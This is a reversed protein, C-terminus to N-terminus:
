GLRPQFPGPVRAAHHCYGLSKWLGRRPALSAGPSPTQIHASIKRSGERRELWVGNDRVDVPTPLTTAWRHDLPAGAGRGALGGGQSPRDPAWDRVEPPLLVPSPRCTHFGLHSTNPTRPSGVSVVGGSAGAVKAKQPFLPGRGLTPTTSQKLSVQQDVSDRAAEPLRVRSCQTPGPLFRPSCDEGRSM